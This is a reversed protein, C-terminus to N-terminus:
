RQEQTDFYSRTHQGEPDDQVYLARLRALAEAAFQELQASSYRAAHKSAIRTWDTVAGMRQSVGFRTKAETQNLITASFAGARQHKHHMISLVVQRVGGEPDDGLDWVFRVERDKQSCRSPEVLEGAATTTAETTDLSQTTDPM